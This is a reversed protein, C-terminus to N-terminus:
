PPLHLGLARVSRRGLIFDAGPYNEAQYLEEVELRPDRTIRTEYLRVDVRVCKGEMDTSVQSSRCVVAALHREAEVYLTVRDPRKAERSGEFGERVDLVIGVLWM